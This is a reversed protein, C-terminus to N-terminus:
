GSRRLDDRREDPHPPLDRMLSRVWRSITADSRAIRRANARAQADRLPAAWAPSANTVGRDSLGPRSGPVESM